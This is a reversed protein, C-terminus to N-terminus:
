MLVYRDNKTPSSVPFYLNLFGEVKLLEINLFEQLLVSWSFNVPILVREETKVAEKPFPSLWLLISPTNPGKRVYHVRHAHTFAAQTWLCPECNKTLILFLILSSIASVLNKKWLGSVPMKSNVKMFCQSVGSFISCNCFLSSTQPRKKMHTLHNNIHFLMLLKRLNFSQEQSITFM